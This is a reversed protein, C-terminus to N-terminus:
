SSVCESLLSLPLSREKKKCNYSFCFVANLFYSDTSNWMVQEMVKIWKFEDQFGARFFNSNNKNIYKLQEILIKLRDPFLLLLGPIDEASKFM